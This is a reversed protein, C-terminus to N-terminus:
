LLLINKNNKLSKTKTEEYEKLYQV